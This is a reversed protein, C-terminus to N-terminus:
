FNKKCTEGVKQTIVRENYGEIYQLILCKEDEEQSLLRCIVTNNSVINDNKICFIDFFLKFRLNIKELLM